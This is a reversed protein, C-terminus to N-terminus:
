IWALNRDPFFIYMFLDAFAKSACYILASIGLCFEIPYPM